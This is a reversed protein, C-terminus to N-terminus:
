EDDLKEEVNDWMAIEEETYGLARLIDDAPTGKVVESWIFDSKALEEETLVYDKAKEMIELFEEHLEEDSIKRM